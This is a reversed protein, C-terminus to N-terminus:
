LSKTESRLIRFDADYFTNQIRGDRHTITLVIEQTNITERIKDEEPTKRYWGTFGIVAFELGSALKHPTARFLKQEAVGEKCSFMYGDIAGDPNMEYRGVLNAPPHNSSYMILKGDHFRLFNVSDCMCPTALGRYSGEITGPLLAIGAVIAGVALLGIGCRGLARIIRTKRM